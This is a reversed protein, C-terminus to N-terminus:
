GKAFMDALEAPAIQDLQDYRCEDPTKDPRWRVFSAPHRLRGNTLGQYGVEAVLECRLAVWSQDKASNWRSPAGPLRTTGTEQAMMDAWDRWPHGELSDLKYPALEEVLEKRRAATFSSCVGISHLSGEDDFLGLLLSGVGLGDKHPRYGAVVMDATRQHKVKLLTRKDSLYPDRAPKAIVGDFGAGEFREFWDSAVEPDLTMPTVHIPPSPKLAAELRARREACPLSRLDDDGLAILDFAV